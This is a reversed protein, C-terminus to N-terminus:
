RKCFKGFISITYNLGIGLKGEKGKGIIGFHDMNLNRGYRDTCGGYEIYRGEADWQGKRNQNIKYGEPTSWLNKSQGNRFSKGIENGPAPFLVDRGEKQIANNIDIPPHSYYMVPPFLVDRREKKIAINVGIM